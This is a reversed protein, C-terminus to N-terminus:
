ESCWSITKETQAALSVFGSYDIAQFPKANPIGRAEADPKLTFLQISRTESLETLRRVLLAQTSAYCADEILLLSDGANLLHLMKNWISSHKPSQNITHLIAM